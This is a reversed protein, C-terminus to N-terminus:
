HRLQGTQLQLEVGLQHARIIADSQTANIRDGLQELSTSSLWDYVGLTGTTGLGSPGVPPTPYAAALAERCADQHPKLAVSVREPPLAAVRLFYDMAGWIAFGSAGAEICPRLQDSVFEDGPVPALFTAVSSNAQSQFWPSVAPFIPPVIRGRSQFYRKISDIQAKRYDSEISVALVASPCPYGKAQAFVDYACPMVWDLHELVPGFNAAFHDIIALRETNTLESWVKGNPFYPVYPFGYYTWRITPFETKVAEITAILSSVCASYNPDSSGRILTYGFPEEFDLVGWTVPTGGSLIRRVEAVVKASDIIGTNAAESDANNQYVILYRSEYDIPSTYTNTPASDSLIRYPNGDTTTGGDGTSGGGASTGAGTTTGGDGTTGAGTTTGGDGTTGGGASTGAGTTTGGDGTTGGGATAGSSSPPPAVMLGTRTSNLKPPNSAQTVLWAGLQTSNAVVHVISDDSLYIYADHIGPSFTLRWVQQNGVQIASSIMSDENTPATLPVVTGGGLLVRDLEDRAAAAAFSDDVSLAKTDCCVGLRSGIASHLAAEFWYSEVSAGSVVADFRSKPPIVPIMPRPLVSSSRIQQVLTLATGFGNVSTKPALAVIHASGVFQGSRTPVGLADALAQDIPGHDLCVISAGPFRGAIPAVLATQIVRDCYDQIGKFWLARGAISTTANKVSSMGLSSALAKARKDKAISSMASLTVTAFTAGRLSEPPVIIFLDASGGAASFADIWNTLRTKVTKPGTVLWPSQVFSKGKAKLRDLSTIDGAFGSIVVARAGSRFASMASAASTPNTTPTVTIIGPHNLHPAPANPTTAWLVGASQMALASNEAGIHGFLTVAVISIWTRTPGRM